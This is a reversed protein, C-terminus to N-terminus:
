GFINPGGRLCIRSGGRIWTYLTTVFHYYETSRDVYKYDCSTTTNNMKSKGVDRFMLNHDNLTFAVLFILLIISGARKRSIWISAKFPFRVSISKETAMAVLLLVSSHLAFYFIFHAFRCSWLSASWMVLQNSIYLFQSLLVCVDCAAMTAMYICTTKSQLPKGLLVTLTFLNLVCGLLLIPLHILKKILIYTLTM